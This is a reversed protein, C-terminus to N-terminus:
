QIPLTLLPGQQDRESEQLAFLIELLALMARSNVDSKDISFWYGRYNVAVEADRPKHKQSRVAFQGATVSTWNFPRGDPGPTTPAIGEAVHQAPVCVGKSLFTMVQYTSRMNLLITDGGLPAPLEEPHEEEAQEAKIKYLSLGPTLGFERALEEMEFSRVARPRVKLAVVKERKKLTAETATTRFVYGDKVAALADQGRVQGLPIPDYADTDFTAVVLEVDGRRELTAIL